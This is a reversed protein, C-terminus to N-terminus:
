GCSHTRIRTFESFHEGSYLDTVHSATDIEVLMCDHSFPGHYFM